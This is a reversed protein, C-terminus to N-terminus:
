VVNAVTEKIIVNFVLEATNGFIPSFRVNQGVINRNRNGFVLKVSDPLVNNIPCSVTIKYLGDKLKQTKEFFGESSVTGSIVTGKSQAHYNKGKLTFIIPTEDPFNTEMTFYFKGDNYNCQMEGMIELECGDVPQLPLLEEPLPLPDGMEVYIDKYLWRGNKRHFGWSELYGINIEDITSDNFTQGHKKYNIRSFARVVKIIPINFQKYAEVYPLCEIDYIDDTKQQYFHCREEIYNFIDIDQVDPAVPMEKVSFYFDGVLCSHEWSVQEENSLALVKIRTSKFMEEVKLNPILLSEKLACTYLGNNGQGDSASNDASTSFAIITGKPQTSFPAFGCIIDRNSNTFPNDRCADLICINTKGKYKSIGSLYKNVDFCSFITTTKDKIQCDIPVLYNDGDIQMGHGAYFFLGTSYEDLEILFSRLAEDMETMTLNLHKKVVFGLSNLIDGIDNADNNPNRLKNVYKYESNGIILAIRDM